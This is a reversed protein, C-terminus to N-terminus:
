RSVTRRFLPEAAGYYYKKSAQKLSSGFTAVSDKWNAFTNTLSRTQRKLVPSIAM